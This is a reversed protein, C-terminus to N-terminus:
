RRGDVRRRYAPSDAQRRPRAPLSAQIGLPALELHVGPTDRPLAPRRAARDLARQDREATVQAAAQRKSRSCTSGSRIARRGNCRSTGRTRSGTVRALYGDGLQLDVDTVEGSALELVKLEVRTNATGAAPYRQRYMRAGDANIEFREVEQVPSEDIRTFAIRSFRGAVVLLRHLSGNRGARRVRRRREAGTRRRRDDARAGPATRLDIAYLNQDRIFSSSAVARALFARRDRVVASATLRTVPDKRACEPRVSVSRRRASDALAQRRRLVRVRRHRAALGHTAARAPSRGRGVLAGRRRGARALRGAAAVQRTRTDFAWLDLQDKNDPKGQLYTVYRGDPSFKADRLRPGSLDPAAFIREITLPM